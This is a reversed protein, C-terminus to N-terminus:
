DHFQHTPFASHDFSNVDSGTILWYFGRLSLYLTVIGMAQILRQWIRM